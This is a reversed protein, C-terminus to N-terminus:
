EDIDFNMIELIRNLDQVNEFSITIKKDSIKVKYFGICILRKKLEKIYEKRTMDCYWLM